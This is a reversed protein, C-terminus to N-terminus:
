AAKQFHDDLITKLWRAAMIFPRPLPIAPNQLPNPAAPPGEALVLAPASEDAPLPAEASVTPVRVTDHGLWRKALLAPDPAPFGGLLHQMRTTSPLADWAASSICMRQLFPPLLQARLASPRTAACELMLHQLCRWDSRRGYSEDTPWPADCETCRQAASKTVKGTHSLRPAMLILGTRACFLSRLASAHPVADPNGSLRIWRATAAFNAAEYLAAPSGERGAQEAHWEAAGHIRVQRAAQRAQEPPRIPVSDPPLALHSCGAGTHPDADAPVEDQNATALLRIITSRGINSWLEQRGTGMPCGLLTSLATRSGHGAILERAKRQLLEIHIPPWRLERLAAAISTGPPLFHEGRAMMAIASRQVGSVHPDYATADMGGFVEGGFLLVPAVFWQYITAKAHLAIFPKCMAESFRLLTDTAQKARAEASVTLQLKSDLQIGLWRVNSAPTLGAEKVLQHRARVRAQTAHPEHLVLCETKELNLAMDMARLRKDVAQIGNSARSAEASPSLLRRLLAIDDAYMSTGALRTPAAGGLPVEVDGATSCVMAIALIFLLPSAPCGQRVGRRVRFPAGAHSAGVRVAITANAYMARIMRLTEEGVGFRDAAQLMLEHPVSDFAAQVDLLVALLPDEPNPDAELIRQAAETLACVQTLCGEGKLYANQIAPLAIRGSTIGAQLRNAVAKACIKYIISTLSLPRQNAPFTADKGPKPISVLEAENLADPIYGAAWMARTLARVAVLLAPVRATAGHGVTTLAQKLLGVPINDLGPASGTRLDAIARDIEANEPICDTGPVTDAAEVVGSAEGWQASTRHSQSPPAAGFKNRWHTLLAPAVTSLDTAVESRTDTTGDAHPVRTPPITCRRQDQNRGILANLVLAYQHQRHSSHHHAAELLDAMITENRTADLVRDRANRAASYAAQASALDLLHQATAEPSETHPPPQKARATLLAATATRMQHIARLSERSLRHGRKHSPAAANCPSAAGAAAADDFIAEHLQLHALTLDTRRARQIPEPDGGPAATLMDTLRQTWMACWRQVKPGDVVRAREAAALRNAALRLHYRRSHPGEPALSAVIGPHLMLETQLTAAEAAAKAAEIRATWLPSPGKLPPRARHAAPVGPQLTYVATVPWHTASLQGSARSDVRALSCRNRAVSNAVIFDIETAKRHSTGGYYTARPADPPDPRWTNPLIHLDLDHKAILGRLQAATMNWDGMLILPHAPHTCSVESVMSVLSAIVETRLTKQTAQPIYVSGVIDGHLGRREPDTAPSARWLQVLVMNPTGYKMHTLTIGSSARVAVAVGRKGKVQSGPAVNHIITWGPLTATKAEPDTTLTEQLALVTIRRSDHTDGAEPPSILWEAASDRHSSLSGINSSGLVITPLTSLPRHRQTKRRQFAENHKIYGGQMQAWRWLRHVATTLADNTTANIQADIRCACDASSGRAARRVRQVVRRLRVVADASPNGEESHLDTDPCSLRAYLRKVEPSAIGWICLGASFPRLRGEKIPEAGACTSPPPAEAAAETSLGVNGGTATPSKTVRALDSPATGERRACHHLWPPPLM